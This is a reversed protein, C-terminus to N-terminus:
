AKDQDKGLCCHKYKKGSGCPCFANRPTKEEKRFPIIRGGGAKPSVAARKNKWFVNLQMVSYPILDMVGEELERQTMEGEKIFLEHANDEDLFFYIPALYKSLIEGDEETMWEDGMLDMGTMFGICWGLPDYEEDEEEGMMDFLPGYAEAELETILGNYLSLILTYLTQFQEKSDFTPESGDLSFILPVWTSPMVLEPGIAIATMLGHIQTIEM